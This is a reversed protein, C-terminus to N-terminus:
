VFFRYTAITTTESIVHFRVNFSESVPPISTFASAQINILKLSNM